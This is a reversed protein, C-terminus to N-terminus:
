LEFRRMFRAPNKILMVSTRPRRRTKGSLTAVETSSPPLHRTDRPAAGSRTASPKETQARVGSVRRRTRSNQIPALTVIPALGVRVVAIAGVQRTVRWDKLDFTLIYM